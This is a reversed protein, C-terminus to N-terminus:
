GRRSRVAGGPDLAGGPCARHCARSPGTKTREERGLGAVPPLTAGAGTLPAARGLLAELTAFVSPGRTGAPTTGRPALAKTPNLRTLGPAGRKERKMANFRPIHLICRAPGAPKSGSSCVLAQRPLPPLGMGWFVRTLRAPPHKILPRAAQAAPGGGANGLGGGGRRDEPKMADSRPIRTAGETARAREARRAAVVRGRAVRAARKAARAFAIAQRWPAQGAAEALAERREVERVRLALRAARDAWGAAAARGTTGGGNRVVPDLARHCTRCPMADATKSFAVQSPHDPAKLEAPGLALRAAMEAPLHERLRLAAGFLRMRTALTSVYRQM